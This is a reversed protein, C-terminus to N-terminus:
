LPTVILHVRCGVRCSSLLQCSRVELVGAKNRQAVSTYQSSRGTPYRPIMGIFLSESTASLNTSKKEGSGWQWQHVKGGYKINWTSAQIDEWSFWQCLAVHGQALGSFGSWGFIVQKPFYFPWSSLIMLMTSILYHTIHIHIHKYKCVSWQNQLIM